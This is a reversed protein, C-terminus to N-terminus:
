IMYPEIVSQVNSGAQTLVWINKKEGIVPLGYKRGSEGLAM